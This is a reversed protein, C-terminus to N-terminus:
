YRRKYFSTEGINCSFSVLQVVPTWVLTNVNQQDATVTVLKINTTIGPDSTNYDFALNTASATNYTNANLADQIYNVTTRLRYPTKYSLAGSNGIINVNTNDFDNLNTTSGLVAVGVATANRELNIPTMHRRLALQFHGPRFDLGAVRELGTVPAVIATTIVQSASLGAGLFNSQPDWPFTLIQSIKTTTIMIGEQLLNREQSQSDTRILLPVGLMTIGIIVIAFILEIMSFAWKFAKFNSQKQSCLKKKM